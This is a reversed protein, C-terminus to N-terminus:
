DQLERLLKALKVEVLAARQNIDVLADQARSIQISQKINELQLDSVEEFVPDDLEVSDIDDLRGACYQAVNEIHSLDSLISKITHLAEDDIYPM